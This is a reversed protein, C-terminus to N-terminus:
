GIWPLYRARKWPDTTTILGQEEREYLIIEQNGDGGEWLNCAEIDCVEIAGILRDHM